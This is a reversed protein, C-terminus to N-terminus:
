KDFNVVTISGNERTILVTQTRSNFKFTPGGKVTMVFGSNDDYKKMSVGEGYNTTHEAPVNAPVNAQASPAAVVLVSFISLIMATTNM